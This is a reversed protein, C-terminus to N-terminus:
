SAGRLFTTCWAACAISPMLLDGRQEGRRYSLDIGLVNRRILPPHRRNVYRSRPLGHTSHGRCSGNLHLLRLFSSSSHITVGKANLAIGTTGSAAKHTSRALQHLFTTKGTGAKDTLFVHRATSNVFRAALTAMETTELATDSLMAGLNANTRPVVPTTTTNAESESLM